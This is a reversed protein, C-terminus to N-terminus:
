QQQQEITGELLHKRRLERELKRFGQEENVTFDIYSIGATVLTPGMERAMLLFVPTRVEEAFLYEKPAWRSRKWDPSLVSLVAAAERIRDEVELFWHAQYDRDSDQYDWFGYGRDGLFGRLEQVFEFDEECYSIFVYGRSKPAQQPLPHTHRVSLDELGRVLHKVGQEFEETFDVGQLRALLVPMWSFPEKAIVVPIIPKGRSAFAASESLCWSSSASHPSAVFLLVDAQMLAKEMASSWETGPQLADVDRWINFGEERLRAVLKDVFEKDHRSYSIFVYSM